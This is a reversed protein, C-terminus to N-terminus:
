GNFKLENLNEPEGLVKAFVNFSMSVRPTKSPNHAVSHRLTSPFLLLSNKEAGIWWSKSNFENWKTTTFDFQPFATTGAHFTIPPCDEPVQLFYVSSIMSNPHFHLHHGTGKPNFNMWSQTIYFQHKRDFQFFEYCYHDVLTQFKEKMKKLIPNDLVYSDKSIFNQIVGKKVPAKYLEKPFIDRRIHIDAPRVYNFLFDKEKDTPSYVKKTKLVPQAFLSYVARNSNPKIKKM